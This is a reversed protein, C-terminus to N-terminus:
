AGKGRSSLDYTEVKALAAAMEHVHKTPFSAVIQMLGDRVAKVESRLGGQRNPWNARELYHGLAMSTGEIVARITPGDEQRYDRTNLAKWVADFVDDESVVKAKTKTKM